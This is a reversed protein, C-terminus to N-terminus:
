VILWAPDFSVTYATLKLTLVSRDTAVLEAQGWYLQTPLRELTRLYEYLQAYSGSVTFEIGHRYAGGQTAGGGAPAAGISTVPLTKLDVLALDRNRRLMEELVDRMRDPPTFRRQEQVVRSNLQAIQERLAALRARNAADPDRAVKQVVTGLQGQVAALDQALQTTEAAIRKQKARLPEILATNVVFVLVTTAALFIMVRERLTAADIREAYRKFLAKM